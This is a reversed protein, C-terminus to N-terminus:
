EGKSADAQGTAGTSMCRTRCFRIAKCIQEVDSLARYPMFKRRRIERLILDTIQGQFIERSTTPGRKM